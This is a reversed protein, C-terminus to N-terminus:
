HVFYGTVDFVLDTTNGSTSMYTPYLYGGSALGVTLGNGKVQGTTFNITSTAPTASYAPGLFVAWGATENVVTVNGTVANAVSPVVGGTVQLTAPTNASLKGIIGLNIRTDLLRTPTIPVYRAGTTDPTYYGTVDFVLDTTNGSTSMYTAYLTGSTNLAVTLGNGTIQGATFNITSTTPYATYVPGLYVAWGATENVVTVNGTVATANSPVISGVGTVQFSVPANATLKASLGTGNRTDLARWPTALPHYTAGATNPMYYGTIDFVLDTTNGATSMYTAYLYGTSTLPVTGGNGIIQGATFNINSTSPSSTSVPGLYVAWGNTENVVTVNGTVASAGSPVGGNGWVQFSAPTNASLKGTIGQNIRTDLVRAPTALPYYTSATTVFIASSADYISSALDTATVTQSGATQLTVSFVHAGNDVSTFAYNVPLVVGAAIDTSTFHVTGRYSTLVASNTGYATVTVNFPAGAAASSPATVVLSGLAASVAVVGTGSLSHTTDTATVTQNGVTGFIAAFTSVGGAEPQPSNSSFLSDTSSALKVSSASETTVVNWYLDVVNVTVPYCMVGVSCAPSGTYGLTTGPAATQGPFLVQLKTATGPTGTATFTAPSGTLGASTATLTNPGAATGLTWSGVTAIGSSNTTTTAGTLSGGGTAVAFTVSVGSVPASSADEVLVSPAIAVATGAYASQGNGASVSITAPPGAVVTSALGVTMGLSLLLAAGVRVFRSSAFAM